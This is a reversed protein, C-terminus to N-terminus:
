SQIVPASPILIIVNENRKEQNFLDTCQSTPLKTTCGYGALASMKQTLLELETTQADM